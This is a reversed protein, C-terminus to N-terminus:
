GNKKKSKLKVKNTIPSIFHLYYWFSNNYIRKLQPLVGIDGQKYRAYLGSYERFRTINDPSLEYGFTQFEKDPNNVVYLIAAEQVYRPLTTYNRRRFEPRLQIIHGIDHKFLYSLVLYQFAM